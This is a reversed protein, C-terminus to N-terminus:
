KSLNVTWTDQTDQRMDWDQKLTDLGFLFLDSHDPKLGPIRKTDATMKTAPNSAFGGNDLVPTMGGPSLVYHIFLKAANPHAAKTVLMAFKPSAYGVWPKLGACVAVDQGQDQADYWSSAAAFGIKTSGKAGVAAITDDDDSSVVPANKALDVIFTKGANGDLKKGEDQQYAQALAATDHLQLETMFDSTQPDQTPDPWVVRSKFSPDTLQWVNTVPCGDPYTKPNYFFVNPNWVAVPPNQSDAPIQKILDAPFWSTVLHQPLLQGGLSGDDAFMLVDVSPTGGAAERTLKTLQDEKSVKIANVKIGYKATFGKAVDAISSSSDWVTLSGEKKAAAVLATLNVPAVASNSAPTGSAATSSAPASGGSSVAPSSDTPSTGASSGSSCASLTVAVVVGAGALLWSRGMKLM